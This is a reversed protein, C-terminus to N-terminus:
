KRGPYAELAGALIRMARALRDRDLVYAIRVESRGLGPTAYFGDAPAVMVTRATSPLTASCSSRSSRPTTSRFGAASISRGRPVDCRSARSRWGSSEYVLNRRLEYEAIVERMYREPVASLGTGVHQGITPPCLRAQGFRLVGDLMSRPQPHRDLRDPGGCMSVRKSLSDTLIVQEDLGDLTWASRHRLGDYTFERYVEDSVLFLGRERCIAAM